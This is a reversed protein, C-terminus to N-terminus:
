AIYVMLSAVTHSISSNGTGVSLPLQPQQWWTKM